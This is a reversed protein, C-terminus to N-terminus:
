MGRRLAFGALGAELLLAVTQDGLMLLRAGAEHEVGNGRARRQVAGWSGMVDVGPRAVVPELCM